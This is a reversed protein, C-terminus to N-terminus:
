YLTHCAKAGFEPLAGRGILQWFRKGLSSKHPNSPQSAEEEGFSFWSAEGSEYKTM